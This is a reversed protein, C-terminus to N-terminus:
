VNDLPVTADFAGKSNSVVHEGSHAVAAPKNPYPKSLSKCLPILSKDLPYIYRIKDAGKRRLTNEPLKTLSGLLSNVQRPHM